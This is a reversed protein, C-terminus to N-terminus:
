PQEYRAERIREYRHCARLWAGALRESTTWRSSVAVSKEDSDWCWIQGKEPPYQYATVAHAWGDGNMILVKAKIGNRRLAQAMIVAEPLCANDYDGIVEDAAVPEAVNTACGALCCTSLVLLYRAFVLSADCRSRAGRPLSPHDPTACSAAAPPTGPCVAPM